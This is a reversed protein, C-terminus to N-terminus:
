WGLLKRLEAEFDDAIQLHQMKDPHADCTSGPFHRSAFWVVRPDNMRKVTEQVWQSLMPDRVISGQTLVIWARSYHTRVDRLLGVYKGVFEDETLPDSKQLNWDNTGLSIVV